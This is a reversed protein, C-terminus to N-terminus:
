VARRRPPPTAAPPARAAARSARSRGGRGLIGRRRRNPQEGEAMGGREIAHWNTLTKPGLVREDGQRRVLRETAHVGLQTAFHYCAPPRQVCSKGGRFDVMEHHGDRRASSHGPMIDGNPHASAEGCGPPITMISANARASTATVSANGKSTMAVAPGSSDSL